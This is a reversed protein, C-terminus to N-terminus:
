EQITSARNAGDKATDVPIRLSWLPSKAVDGWFKSTQPPEPRTRTIAQGSNAARVQGSYVALEVASGDKRRVLIRYSHPLEDGPFSLPYVKAGEPQNICALAQPSKGEPCVDKVWDKRLEVTVTSPLHDGFDVDVRMMASQDQRGSGTFSTFRTSDPLLEALVGLLGAGTTAVKGNVPPDTPGLVGPAASSAVPAAPAQGHPAGDPGFAAVGGTLLAVAATAGVVQLIRRRRRLRRGRTAAEAVITQVPVHIHEAGAGLLRSLDDEIDM